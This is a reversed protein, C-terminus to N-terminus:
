ENVEVDIAQLQDMVQEVQRVAEQKEKELDYSMIPVGKAIRGTQGIQSFNFGTALIIKNSM